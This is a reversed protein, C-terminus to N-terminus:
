GAAGSVMTPLLPRRVIGLLSYVHDRPDKAEMRATTALVEFLSVDPRLLRDFREVQSLMNDLFRGVGSARLVAFGLVDQLLETLDQQAAAWRVTVRRARIVEQAVWLRTHWQPETYKLARSMSAHHGRICRMFTFRWKPLRKLNNRVDSRTLPSFLAVLPVLARLLTDCLFVLLEFLALSFGPKKPPEGLWVIVTTASAYIDGMFKVQHGREAVDSRNICLADVWVTRLDARSRIRQVADYLNDTVPLTYKGNLRIVRQKRRAGWTYSLAEYNPTGLELSVLYPSAVDLPGDWLDQWGKITSTGDWAARRYHRATPPLHTSRLTGKLETGFKGPELDLLRIQRTTSDNPIQDYVASGDKVPNPTGLSMKIGFTTSVPLSSPRSTLSSNVWAYSKPSHRM